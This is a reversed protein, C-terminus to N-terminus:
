AALAETREDKRSPLREVNSTQGFSPTPYMLNILATMAESRSLGSVKTHPEDAPTLKLTYTTM